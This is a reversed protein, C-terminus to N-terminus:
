ALSRRATGLGSAAGQSLRAFVGAANRHLEKPMTRLMTREALRKSLHDIGGASSPAALSEHVCRRREVAQRSRLNSLM